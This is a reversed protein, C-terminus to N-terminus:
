ETAILQITDTLPVVSLAGLIGVALLDKKLSADLRGHLKMTLWRGGRISCERSWSEPEEPIGETELQASFTKSQKKIAMEEREKQTARDTTKDRRVWVLRSQVIEIPRLDSQPVEM